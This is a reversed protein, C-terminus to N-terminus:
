RSVEDRVRPQLASASVRNEAIAKKILDKLERRTVKRFRSGFGNGIACALECFRKIDLGELDVHKDAIDAVPTEGLSPKITISAAQLDREEVWVVELNELHQRTTALALAVDCWWDDRTCNVVWFSLKNGTTRLTVIADAPFEGATLEPPPQWKARQIM